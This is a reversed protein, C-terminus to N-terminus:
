FASLMPILFTSKPATSVPSDDSGWSKSNAEMEPFPFKYHYRDQLTPITLQIGPVEYSDIHINTIILILGKVHGIM